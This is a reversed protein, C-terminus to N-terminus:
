GADEPAESASSCTEASYDAFYDPFAEVALRTSCSSKLRGYGRIEMLQCQDQHDDYYNM